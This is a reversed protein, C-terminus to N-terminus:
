KFEYYFLIPNSDETMNKLKIEVGDNFIENNLLKYYGSISSGKICMYVGSSDYFVPTFTNYLNKKFLLNDITKDFIHTTKTKIDYIVNIFSFGKMFRFFVHTPTIIYGYINYIKRQQSMNLFSSESVGYKEIDEKSVFDKSKFALYPSLGHPTISFITDMFVQRFLYPHTITPILCGINFSTMENWGNNYENADLLKGEQKGTTLNISQLMFNNQSPNFEHLDGYLMDNAYQITTISADIAFMVNRKYQGTLADFFILQRNDLLIIEDKDTDITFDVLNVYEGPGSGIRGVKRIFQGEKDFVFLSKATTCDLVYISNKHVLIKNVDGILSEDKTELPICKVSKFLDSLLLSDVKNGEDLDVIFLNDNKLHQYPKIGNDCSIIILLFCFVFFAKM